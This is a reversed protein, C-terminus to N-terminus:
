CCLPKEEIREMKLTTTRERMMEQKFEERAENIVKDSVTLILNHFAEDVCENENTKASTEFYKVNNEEAWSIAEEESIMRNDALDIKNGCLIINIDEDSHERVEALWEPISDFSTRSTM